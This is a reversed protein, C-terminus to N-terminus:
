GGIYSTITNQRLSVKTEVGVVWGGGDCGVYPPLGIRRVMVETTAAGNELM